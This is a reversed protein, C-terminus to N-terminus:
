RQDPQGVPVRWDKKNGAIVLGDLREFNVILRIDRGTLDLDGWSLFLGYGWGWRTRRKARFPIAEQTNFSWEKLLKYDAKGQQDRQLVYIRPRIVGDGFVGTSEPGLLYLAGVKVGKIHTRESNWLWPNFPDYLCSIGVVNPERMRIVEELKPDLKRPPGSKRQSPMDGIAPAPRSQPAGSADNRPNQCGALILTLVAAAIPCTWPCHNVTM